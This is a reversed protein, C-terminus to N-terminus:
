LYMDNGKKYVTIKVIYMNCIKMIHKEEWRRIETCIFFNILICVAQTSNWFCSVYDLRELIDRIYVDEINVIFHFISFTVWIIYFTTTPLGHIVKNFSLKQTSLLVLEIREVELFVCYLCFFWVGKRCVTINSTSYIYYKRRHM